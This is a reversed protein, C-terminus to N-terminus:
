DSTYKAPGVEGLSRHSSFLLDSCYIFAFTASCIFHEGYMLHNDQQSRLSRAQTSQDAKPTTLVVSYDRPETMRQNRRTRQSRWKVVRYLSIVCHQYILLVCM